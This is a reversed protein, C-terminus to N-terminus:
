NKIAWFMGYSAEAFIDRIEFGLSQLRTECWRRDSMPDARGHWEMVFSRIDLRGFRPDSLIEYEGGEVDMKFVDIRRDELLPFIDIVDVDFTREGGTETLMSSSGKDTLQMRRNSAGAGAIHLDVRSRSGDLLLNHETQAAHAPHPEFAIVRADPLTHLWYLLSYGVNAGLDVVLKTDDSRLWPGGKYYEAVFVEYAVGYDNNTERGPRLEFRPGSRLRLTIPKKHGTASWLGYSLASRSSLKRTFNFM